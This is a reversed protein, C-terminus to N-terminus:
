NTNLTYALIKKSNNTFEKNNFNKDSFNILTPVIFFFSIVIVSSITIKSLSNYTNNHLVNINKQHDNKNIKKKIKKFNLKLQNEYGNKSKSKSLKVNKM